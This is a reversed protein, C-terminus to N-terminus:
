GPLGGFLLDPSISAPEGPPPLTRAPERRALPVGADGDRAAEAKRLLDELGALKELVEASEVSRAFAELGGLDEARPLVRELVTLGALAEEPDSTDFAELVDGLFKQGGKVMAHVVNPLHQPALAQVLPLLREYLSNLLNFMALANERKVQRNQLSTPVQVRIAFGLEIVRKPLSFIAQVDAGRQGMWALAKGQVGFQFYLATGMYGVENLGGRISRVTLDIRKAQEQLLALQASATTRTVPQAAGVTAENLGALREGYNRLMMEENVTSPYIEGMQLERIDQHIDMVEIIKGSYLPDGPQLGRVGKRKLFMKLSNITINDSRQNFRASIAEQIQELMECLGEGYFQNEVPSYVLKVFPRLGHYYPHFERGIIQQLDPSYYLLLETMREDGKDIPYSIWVEYIVWKQRRGPVLTAIQEQVRVPQPVEENGEEPEPNIIRDVGFLKGQAEWERLQVENLRLRKACWRADQIDTEGFRIIFDELPVHYTIPGDHKIRERPYAKKGDATRQYLKRVDVQHGVELISTGMKAAEIIWPVATKDIKLDRDGAIDLFKEMKDVFPEWEEALDQLVWYPRATLTAQVLQAVLTNVAEKVVPLTLNSAGYFPFTKPAGPMPAAYVHKFRAIKYEWMARESLAEYIEDRVFNTIEDAIPNWLSDPIQGAVRVVQRPAEAEGAPEKRLLKLQSEPPIVLEAVAAEEAM